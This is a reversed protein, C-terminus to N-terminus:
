PGSSIGRQYNEWMQSRREALPSQYDNLAWLTATSQILGFFTTAAADVDVDQRITGERIGQRLIGKIFELYHTLMQSVRPRLGTSDFGVAQAIIIFTIARRGEIDGLHAELIGMLHQVATGEDVVANRLTDMLKREIDEILISLIQHKSSFHRYIAGETLGVADAIADITVSDM